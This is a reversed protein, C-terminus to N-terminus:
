KDGDDDDDGMTGDGDDDVENGTAGDGDDDVKDGTAGDGNDDDCTTTKTERRWLQRRRIEDGM